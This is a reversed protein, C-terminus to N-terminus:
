EAAGSRTPAAAAQGQTSASLRAAAGFQKLLLDAIGFSGQDAMNDALRGDALERFQDTAASGFLDDALKAQRMSGIVQRLFVAEFAEAAARLKAQKADAAPGAAAAPSTAAPNIM